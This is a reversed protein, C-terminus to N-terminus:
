LHADRLLEAFPVFVVRGQHPGQGIGFSYFLGSDDLQARVPAPGPAAIAAQRGDALRLMHVTTGVLYLAIGAHLDVLEAAAASAIPWNHRLEGTSADYHQVGESTLAALDPGQLKAGRLNPVTVSRMRSGGGSFVSVIADGERVLIREDDVGLVTLEGASSAIRTASEAGHRVTWLEGDHKGTDCPPRDCVAEVGSWSDFAILSGDGRVDALPLRHCYYPEYSPCLGGAYAPAPQELTATTLTYCHSRMGCRNFEAFGVRTGALALDNFPPPSSTALPGCPGRGLRTVMRELPDWVELCKRERTRYAIAVRSGDAALQDVPATTDLVNGRDVSDSPIAWSTATGPVSEAARSRPTWEYLGNSYGYHLGETARHLEGSDVDLVFIDGEAFVHSRPSRSSSFAIARGNPSWSFNHSFGYGLAQLDLLRTLGTGDANVLWPTGFHVLIRNGRPAWDLEFAVGKELVTRPRPRRIDRVYVGEAQGYGLGYVIRRSDPAWGASTVDDPVLRRSGRGNPHVIWLAHGKRYLIWRGDPSWQPPGDPLQQSITGTRLAIRKPRGGSIPVVFLASTGNSDGWYALRKSDPAWAFGDLRALYKGAALRSPRRVMAHMVLLESVLEFGLSDRSSIRVYAIRTGDPSLRAVGERTVQRLGSGDANVVHSGENRGSTFFLSGPSRNASTTGHARVATSLVLLVACTVALVVHTTRAVVL